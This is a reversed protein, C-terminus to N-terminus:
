TLGTDGGLAPLFNVVGHEVSKIRNGDGTDVVSLEASFTGILSGCDAGCIKITAMAASATQTVTISSGGSLAAASDMDLDPTAGRRRGIKFRVVDGSNLAMGDADAEYLTVVQSSTRGQTFTLEYAM